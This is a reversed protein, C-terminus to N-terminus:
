AGGLLSNVYIKRTQGDLCLIEVTLRQKARQVLDKVMKHRKDGGALLDTVLEKGSYSDLAMVTGGSCLGEESSDDFRPIRGVKLEQGVVRVPFRFVQSSLLCCAQELEGAPLYWVEHKAADYLVRRSGLDRAAFSGTPGPIDKSQKAWTGIFFPLAQRGFSVNRWFARRQIGTGDFQEWLASSIAPEYPSYQDSLINLLEVALPWKEGDVRMQDTLWQDQENKVLPVRLLTPEDENSGAKLWEVARSLEGPGMVQITEEWYDIAVLKGAFFDEGLIMSVKKDSATRGLDTSRFFSEEAKFDRQQGAYRIELNSGFQERLDDLALSESNLPEVIAYRQQGTVLVSLARYPGYEELKAPEALPNGAALCVLFIAGVMTELIDVHPLDPLIADPFLFASMASRM